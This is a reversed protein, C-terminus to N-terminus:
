LRGPVQEPEKHRKLPLVQSERHPEVRGIVMRGTRADGQACVEWGQAGFENLRRLMQTADDTWAITKYEVPEM